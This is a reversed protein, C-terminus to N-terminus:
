AKNPAASKRITKTVDGTISARVNEPALANISKKSGNKPLKAAKIVFFGNAKV